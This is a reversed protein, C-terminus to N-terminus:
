VKYIIDKKRVPQEVKLGISKGKGAKSVSKGDVQMSAATQKVERTESPNKIIINDGKSLPVTLKVVALGLRNYYNQVVGVKKGKVM